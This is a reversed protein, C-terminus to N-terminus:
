ITWDQDDLWISHFSYTIDTVGLLVRMTRSGREECVIMARANAIM